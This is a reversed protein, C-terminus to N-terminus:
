RGLGQKAIKPPVFQSRPDTHYHLRTARDIKPIENFEHVQNKNGHIFTAVDEDWAEYTRGVFHSPRNHLYRVATFNPSPVSHYARIGIKGTLGSNFTGQLVDPLEVSGFMSKTRCYKTSGPLCSGQLVCAMDEDWTDATGCITADTHAKRSDRQRRYSTVTGSTTEHEDMNLQLQGFSTYKMCGVQGQSATPINSRAITHIERCAAGQNVNQMKNKLLTSRDQQNKLFAQAQVLVEKTDNPSMERSMPQIGQMIPPVNSVQREKNKQPVHLTDHSHESYTRHSTSSFAAPARQSTTLLRAASAPISQQLSVFKYM